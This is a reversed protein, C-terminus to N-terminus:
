NKQENEIEKKHPVKWIVKYPEILDNNYKVHAYEIGEEVLRLVASVFGSDLMSPIESEEIELEYVSTDDEVIIVNM